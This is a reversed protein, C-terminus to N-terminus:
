HLDAALAFGPGRAGPGEGEGARYVRGPAAPQQARSTHPSPTAVEVPVSRAKEARRKELYDLVQVIGAVIGIVLALGGIITWLDM